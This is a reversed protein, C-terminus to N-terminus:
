WLLYVFHLCISHPHFTVGNMAYNDTKAACSCCSPRFYSCRWFCKLCFRERRSASSVTNSGLWYVTFFIEMYTYNCKVGESEKSRRGLMLILIGLPESTATTPWTPHPLVVKSEARRPSVSFNDPFTYTLTLIQM